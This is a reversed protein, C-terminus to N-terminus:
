TIRKVGLYQASYNFAKRFDDRFKDVMRRNDEAWYPYISEMLLMCENFVKKYIERKKELGLNNKNIPDLKESIVVKNIGAHRLDLDGLLAHDPEIDLYYDFFMQELSTNGPLKILTAIDKQRVDKKLKNVSSEDVDGDLLIIHTKFHQYDNKLLDLLNSFGMNINPCKIRDKCDHVLKNLLWRAENDEAYVTVKRLPDNFPMTATLDSYIDEYTPGDFKVVAGNTNSLYCLEHGNFVDPNNHQTKEAVIEILFLSHTTFVIQIGIERSKACLYEYLRSLSAPHLTADIEDILLMGGQWKDGMRTRLDQFSLVALIIQGLNDQGASNCLADYEATNLGIATKRKTESINVSGFGLMQEKKTFFIQKYASKLEDEWDSLNKKRDIDAQQSEGVPYLRSLGLYLTPWTVKKSSNRDNVRRVPLIRFRDKQITTRYAFTEILQELEDEFNIFSINGIRAPAKDYKASTKIIENWECQFNAKLIPKYSPPLEACHGLLALLTSKGTANHGSIATTYHGLKIDLNKLGRFDSIHLNKIYM